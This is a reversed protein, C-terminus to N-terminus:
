SKKEKPFWPFFSSTREQYARYLPRTELLSTELLAVGSVKLLLFTITLPGIITWHTSGISIGIFFLGWWVLFEGFYNPHRTFRWLGQDMVKGQNASDARFRSLQLDAVTEFIFGSAWILGGFADLWVFRNPLPLLQGAQVPLSIIWLLVGQFLFITFLSIWWFQKGHKRRWAQYRRDEGKGLNRFLIHLSLRLGWVTVLSVILLKRGFYGSSSSFTIWAVGIFGLGWFIDAISADRLVLSLLWLVVMFVTVALLNWLLITLPANMTEEIM